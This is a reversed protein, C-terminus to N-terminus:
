TRWDLSNAEIYCCNFMLEFEMDLAITRGLSLESTDQVKRVVPPLLKNGSNDVQLTGM